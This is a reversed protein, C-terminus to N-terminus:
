GAGSRATTKFNTKQFTLRETQLRLSTYLYSTASIKSPEQTCTTSNARQSQNTDTHRCSSVTSNQVEETEELM